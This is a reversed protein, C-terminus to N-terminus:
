RHVYKLFAREKAPSLPAKGFVGAKIHKALYAYRITRLYKTDEYEQRIKRELESVIKRDKIFIPMGGFVARQKLLPSRNTALNVVDVRNAGVLRGVEYATKLQMDFYAELPVDRAFFIAIDFDSLPGHAGRSVSGFLYAAVIGNKEFVPALIKELQTVNTEM